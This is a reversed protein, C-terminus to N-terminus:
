LPVRIPLRAPGHGLLFPAAPIIVTAARHVIAASSVRAPLWLPSDLSHPPTALVLVDTAGQTTRGLAYHLPLCCAASVANAPGRRVGICVQRISTIQSVIQNEMFALYACRAQQFCRTAILGVGEIALGSQRVPLCPPGGSFLFPTAHVCSHSTPLSRWCIITAITEGVPLTSPRIPFLSKTTLM